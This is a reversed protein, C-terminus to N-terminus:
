AVMTKKKLNRLPDQQLLHTLSHYLHPLEHHLLVPSEFFVEVCVAWFEHLNSGAYMGLITKRGNQIEYFLHFNKELFRNFEKYFHKDIGCRTVFNVFCYAHAMEHLGLNENFELGNVGRMFRPWVLYIGHRNVHGQLPAKYQELYYDNRFIYINRFFDMQFNEWGFSLQVATAAILVPMEDRGKMGVFHFKKSNVFQFTRWLFREKDAANLRNYYRFSTHLIQHYKAADNRFHYLLVKRIRYPIGVSLYLVFILILSISLTIIGAM